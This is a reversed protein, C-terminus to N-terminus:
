AGGGGGVGVGAGVAGGGGAVGGGGGGRGGAAVGVGRAVAAGATAVADGVGLALVAGTTGTAGSCEADGAMVGGADLAGDDGVGDALVLADTTGAADGDSAGIAPAPPSVIAPSSWSSPDFATRTAM